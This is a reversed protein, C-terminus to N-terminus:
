NDIRLDIVDINDYKDVDFIFYSDALNARPNFDQIDYIYRNGSKAYMIFKRLVSDSEGIFLRIRFYDSNKDEPSLDVVSYSKGDIVEEGFLMYKYGDKYINYINSPTVDEDEPRYDDINVENEEALYTWVTNSSIIIEQDEALLRFKDDKIGIQGEFSEHLDDEVNELTYVINASFSPIAQYKESMKDLIKRADQDYQSRASYGMLVIGALVMVIKKM